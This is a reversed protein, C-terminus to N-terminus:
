GYSINWWAKTVYYLVAPYRYFPIDYTMAYDFLSKWLAWGRKITCHLILGTATRETKTSIWQPMTAM